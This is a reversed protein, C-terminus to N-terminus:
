YKFGAHLNNINNYTSRQFYQYLPATCCVVHATHIYLMDACDELPYALLYEM